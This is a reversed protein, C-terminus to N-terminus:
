LVLLYRLTYLLGLIIAIWNYTQNRDYAQLLFM